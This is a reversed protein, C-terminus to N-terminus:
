GSHSGSLVLGHEAGITDDIARQMHHVGGAAMNAFVCSGLNTDATTINSDSSLYFSMRFTGAAVAGQNVVTASFTASSGVTASSPGSVGIVTLDPKQAGGNM